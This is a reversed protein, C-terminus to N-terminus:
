GLIGHWNQENSGVKANFDGTIVLMDSSTRINVARQLEDYFEDVLVDPDGTNPAYAQMVTVAGIQTHFRATILRPSIPNYGILARQATKNLILAVGKRHLRDHSSYLIKYGEETFEGIETWHAESIGIIEWKFKDLQHVLISLNGEQHLTRVNWTGIGILPKTSFQALRGEPKEADDRGIPAQYPTGGPGPLADNRGIPKSFSVDNHEAIQMGQPSQLMNSVLSKVRTSNQVEM